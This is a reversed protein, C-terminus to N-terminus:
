STTPNTKRRQWEAVVRENLWTPTLDDSEAKEVLWLLYDNPIETLKTGKWKGFPMAIDTIISTDFTSSKGKSRIAKVCGYIAGSLKAAEDVDLTRSRTVLDIVILNDATLVVSWEDNPM